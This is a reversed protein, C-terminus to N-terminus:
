RQHQRRKEWKRQREHIFFLSSSILMCIESSFIINNRLTLDIDKRRYSMLELVCKCHSWIDVSNPTYDSVRVRVIHARPSM